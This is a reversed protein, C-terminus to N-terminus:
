EDMYYVQVPYYFIDEDPYMTAIVVISNGKSNPYAQVDDLIQNIEDIDTVLRSNQINEDSHFGYYHYTLKDAIAYYSYYNDSIDIPESVYLALGEPIQRQTFESFGFQNLAEITNTAKKTIEVEFYIYESDEATTFEIVCLTEPNDERQTLDDSKLANLLQIKEESSLNMSQLEDDFAGRIIISSIDEESVHYWVSTNEIFEQSTVVSQVKNFIDDNMISISYDRSVEQGNDLTYEVTFSDDFSYNDNLSLNDKDELLTEHIDVIIEINQDSELEITNLMEGKELWSSYYNTSFSLKTVESAKPIYNEYGFWGTLVFAFYILPIIVSISITIISHKNQCFGKRFIACLCFAVCVAYILTFILVSFIEFDKYTSVWVSFVSLVFTVTIVAVKSLIASLNNNEAFESKRKNYAVLALAFLLIALISYSLYVLALDYEVYFLRLYGITAPSFMLIDLFDSSYGIIAGNMVNSHVMYLAPICVTFFLSFISADLKSASLTSCLYTIAMILLGNIISSFIENYIDVVGFDNPNVGSLSLSCIGCFLIPIVYLTVSALLHSFYISNRSIPLSHMLTVSKKKHLFSLTSISIIIAMISLFAPYLIATALPIADYATNTIRNPVLYQMPFAIFSLVLYIVALGKLRFLVTKYLNFFSKTTTM